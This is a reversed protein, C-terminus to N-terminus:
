GLVEKSGQPSPIPLGVTQAPQESRASNTRQVLDRIDAALGNLRDPIALAAAAVYRDPRLLLVLTRGAPMSPALTDSADRV